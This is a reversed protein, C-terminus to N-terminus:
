SFASYVERYVLRVSVKEEISTRSGLSKLEHQTSIFIAMRDNFHTCFNLYFTVVARWQSGYVPLSQSIKRQYDKWGQYNLFVDSVSFFRKLNILYM